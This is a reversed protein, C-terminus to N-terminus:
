WGRRAGAAAGTSTCTGVHPATAGISDSARARPSAAADCVAAVRGRRVTHQLFGRPLWRSDRRIIVFSPYVPTSLSPPGASRPAAPLGSAARAANAAARAQRLRPWPTTPRRTRVGHTSRRASSSASAAAQPSPATSRSSASPTAMTRRRSTASLSCRTTRATRSTPRSSCAAARRSRRGAAPDPRSPFTEISTKFQPSTQARARSVKGAGAHSDPFRHLLHYAHDSTHNTARPRTSTLHTTRQEHVRTGCTPTRAPKVSSSRCASCRDRM